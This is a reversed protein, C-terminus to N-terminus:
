IVEFPAKLKVCLAEARDHTLVRYVPDYATLYAPSHQVAPWLEAARIRGFLQVERATFREAFAGGPACGGEFVRWWTALVAPDGVVVQASQVFADLLPRVAERYALYPRMHFRVIAGGPHIQEVLPLMRDPTVRAAEHELWERALKKNPILRGPGFVGQHLLKYVDAIEAEPYRGLHTEILAVVCDESM